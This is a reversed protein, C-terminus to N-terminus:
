QARESFGGVAAYVYDGAAAPDPLPSSLAFAFAEEIERAIDATM